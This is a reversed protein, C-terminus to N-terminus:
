LTYSLTPLIWVAFFELAAIAICAGWIEPKWKIIKAGDFPMIPIMNFLALSGNLMMMLYFVVVVPEGNLALCGLIGVASLVMNVMPGAISIIGNERETIYNSRIMVAGPAAFLFGVFGMILAFFLGAPYMRYESWMGFRQATFKHGMEHGVFSLITIVFMMGFMGVFWSEGLSDRFWATVFDSDRLILVFAVTLVVTSILIDRIEITSFRHVPENISRIGM